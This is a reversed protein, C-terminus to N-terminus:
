MIKVMASVAFKEHALEERNFAGREKRIDTYTNLSCYSQNKLSKCTLVRTKDDSFTVIYYLIIFNVNEVRWKIVIEQDIILKCNLPIIM